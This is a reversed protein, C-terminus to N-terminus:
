ACDGRGNDPLKIIADPETSVLTWPPLVGATHHSAAELARKIVSEAPTGDTVRNFRAFCVGLAVMM